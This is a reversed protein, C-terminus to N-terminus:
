TAESEDIAAEREGALSRWSSPRCRCSADGWSSSATSLMLWRCSSSTLPAGAKTPHHVHTEVTHLSSAPADCHCSSPAPQLASPRTAHWPAAALRAPKLSCRIYGGALAPSWCAEGTHAVSRFQASRVQLGQGAKRAQLVPCVECVHSGLRHSGHVGALQRVFVYILADPRAVQVVHAAFLHHDAPSPQPSLLRPGAPTTCQVTTITHRQQGVRYCTMILESSMLLRGSHHRQRRAWVMSGPSLSAWAAARQCCTVTRILPAPHPRYVSAHDRAADPQRAQSGAECNSPQLLGHWAAVWAARRSRRSHLDLHADGVALRHADLAGVLHTQKQALWACGVVRFAM